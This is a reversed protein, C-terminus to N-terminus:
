AAQDTEQTGFEVTITKEVYSGNGGTPGNQGMTYVQVTIEATDGKSYNSVKNVLDMSSTIPTGDVATIIDGARIGAKDAAEGSIVEQVYAGSPIGNSDAYERSITVVSVGLYANGNGAEIDSEENSTNSPTEEKFTGNAIDTLIPEATDIPIAFGINEVSSGGNMACNIGILEGRMNLMAGGSNGLNIAADTQILDEMMNYEYTSMDYARISRNFASIIGSSATQGYGLANGIVVVQEGLEAEDSSGIPIVAIKNLTDDSLDKKLVKVLAVDHVSDGGMVEAPAVTEDIFSISLETAGEVVHDNSAILIEDDTEGVIIGTGASVRKMEEPEGNNQNQGFGGGGFGGYGYGFFDGFFRNIFDDGGGLNYYQQVEEITTNTISVMAPMANAVIEQTTLDTDSAEKTAGLTTRVAPMADGMETSAVVGAGLLSFTGTLAACLGFAKWKNMKMM